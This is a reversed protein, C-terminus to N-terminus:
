DNITEYLQIGNRIKHLLPLDIQCNVSECHDHNKDDLQVTGVKTGNLYVDYMSSGLAVVDYFLERDGDAVEISFEEM